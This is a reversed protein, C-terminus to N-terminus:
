RTAASAPRRSRPGPAPDPIRNWDPGDGITRPPLEPAARDGPLPGAAVATSEDEGPQVPEVVLVVRPDLLYKRAVRQIDQPTVAELKALSKEYYHPDNHQALGLAIVFTRQMPSTLGVLQSTRLKTKVRQVEDEGPAEEKIRTLEAEILGEIDEVKAQPAATADVVFMGGIENVNSSTRVEVALQKDRVLSKELRSADGSSLLSSLLDLAAADESTEAVTPWAMYVRPFQVRDKQIIRKAITPTAVAEVPQVKPGSSLPGFYREILAKADESDFGGVLTLTANGPHYFEQFFRRLDDLTARNLDTMSGIVSWSYPHGPPYVAASLTEGALGYPANEMRQRRENKVVERETDFKEQDLASSLFAMRNAEMYLTRELYNNPITEFYVTVDESTFANPSGGAKQLPVDFNPVHQTGRFMMHEFFHAFGTLGPRENKSGVHYAVCVTTRPAGSEHSLAVTLGNPLRYTEVPLKLVIPEEGWSATAVLLALAGAAAGRCVWWRTEQLKRMNM